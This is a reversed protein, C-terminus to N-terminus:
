APASGEAALMERYIEPDVNGGSLTLAVTKGRTELRGALLAALAVAGGPEIVLKLTRFAYGMAARVEDDSVAFGGAVLRRNIPFTLEGPTPALLADCFSRAAPDNVVRAGGAAVQVLSRRTDDFDDPEVTYVRTKPSLEALALACGATLGGGGCCVLLADIEFGRAAAQGAIELGCTGQGAIVGPDDYPRVLTAGREAALAAGLAERNETFRDYLVVEAGFGRTNAIKIAPADKPMVITAPVGLLSAAAAVGQAHNGSSYAVVGAGREAEPIQSIRNFAGRFKFSGSRQLTEAKLLIRGALKRDLAPSNLLPTEVAWGALRAAAAEIDAFVPAKGMSEQSSTM